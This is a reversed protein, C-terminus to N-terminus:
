IEKVSLPGYAEDFYSAVASAQEETDFVAPKESAGYFVQGADNIVAFMM